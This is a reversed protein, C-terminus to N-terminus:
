GKHFTLKICFLLSAPVGVDPNVDDYSFAYGRGDLEAGHVLRSYHNCTRDLYYQSSPVGPQIFGGARFFTARNLAACYRPVIAHRLASDTSTLAFPGSNCGWIDSATPKKFGLGEGNCFLQNGVFYCAVIGASSQTNLYLPSKKFVTIVRSMYSDYYGSFATKNMSKYINPSLVRLAKGNRDRVCMNRWPQRDIASQQALATCIYNVADPRIGQAIQDTQQGQSTLRLGLVLGVFDVYSLNAYLGGAKTYTLEIFGWNIGTSPDDLNAVSPEVLAFGTGTAVTYFNLQGRSVYIRGATIYDPLLIQTTKTGVKLAVTAAVVQPGQTQPRLPYYWKGNAQLMVIRGNGDKGTFYVSIDNSGINNVLNITLRGPAIAVLAHSHAHSSRSTGTTLNSASGTTFNLSSGTTLNFASPATSNSDPVVTLNLATNITFNPPSAATVDLPCGATPNLPTTAAFGPVPGTTQNLTNGEDIMLSKTLNIPEILCTALMPVILVSGLRAAAFSVHMISIFWSTDASSTSDAFDFM